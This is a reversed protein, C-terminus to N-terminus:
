FGYFSILYSLPFDKVNFSINQFVNVVYSSYNWYLNNSCKNSTCFLYMKFYSWFIVEITVALTLSTIIPLLYFQDCLTLDTFWWLGGSRLSDVPLSAMERLGM